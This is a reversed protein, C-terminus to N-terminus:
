NTLRLQTVKAAIDQFAADLAAANAADYYRDPAGACASMVSKGSVSVDKGFTIAYVDIEDARVNACAQKTWQDAQTLDSGWHWPDPLQASKQNDGDTMLLMIKKVRNKNAGTVKIGDEFPAANSIVRWGWMVGTSIYTEGNANMADIAATLDAKNKTLTKLEAGCWTNMLGPFPKSAYPDQLNFPTQRSGACGYWKEENTVNECVEYEPGYTYDCTEAQYSVGDYSYTEMRCNAKSVVDRKMHCQFSTSSTDAPVTMWPQSRNALGVNVHNTFPVLGIKVTTYPNEAEFMTDVFSKAVTRLSGIKDDTVMSYTNDLVMVVEIDTVEGINAASTVEVDKASGDVFGSFISSKRSGAEIVIDNGVKKIKIGRLDGAYNAKIFQEVDSASMLSGTDRYSRAAFLVAADVAGQLKSRTQSLSGYDLAMGVAVIAVPMALALMMTFNGAESSLFNRRKSM